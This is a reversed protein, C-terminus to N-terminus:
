RCSARKASVSSDMLCPVIFTHETTSPKKTLQYHPALGSANDANLANRAEVFETVTKYPCLWMCYTPSLTIAAMVVMVFLVAYPLYTWKVNINRLIPKNFIRSFGEDLGGFFCVWSCFGRGLALSAGIWLIFMSSISASGGIITGPFIITKTLAAPILTMPMVIHCFPTQGEPMNTETVAMSGRLEVLHTIFSIVFAISYVTFLLSRYRYTKTTHIMLVFLAGFFLFVAATAVIDKPARPMTGRTLIVLSLLMMPLALLITRLPSRNM